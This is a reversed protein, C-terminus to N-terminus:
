QIANKIYKEIEPVNLGTSSYAVKGNKDIIFITPYGPVGYKNAVNSGNVLVEYEINNKESFLTIDDKSDNVNISVLNFKDDRFKKHLENLNSVASLCYGCNKIWFELLVVEGNFSDLSTKNGAKSELKWEPALSGVKLLQPRDGPEYQAFEDTYTSYFWSTEDPTHNDIEFETFTTKIFDGNLSNMQVVGYPLYNDNNIIIKYIIDYKIKMIDFEYGLNQIRRKGVNIDVMWHSIGDIITDNVTKIASLDDILLPLANKITPVSNYLFPLSKFDKKTPNQNVKITKAKKDLEFQETGNFIRKLKPGDAQYKFGILPTSSEFNYYVDWSSVVHYNNSPYNLERSRNIKLTNISNLKQSCVRLVENPSVTKTQSFASLPMLTVMLVAIVTIRGPSNNKKM